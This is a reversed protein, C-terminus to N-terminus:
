FDNVFFFWGFFELARPLNQDNQTFDVFELQCKYGMNGDSKGIIPWKTGETPTNSPKEDCIDKFLSNM